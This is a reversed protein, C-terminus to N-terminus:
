RKFVYKNMNGTFALFSPIFFFFAFFKWESGRLKFFRLPLAAQLRWSCSFIYCPIIYLCLVLVKLMTIILSKTCYTCLTLGVFSLRTSSKANKENKKKKTLNRKKRDDKKEISEWECKFILLNPMIISKTTYHGLDQQDLAKAKGCATATNGSMSARKKIFYKLVYMCVYVSVCICM